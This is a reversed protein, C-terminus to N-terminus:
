FRFRVGARAATGSLNVVAPRADVVGDPAGSSVYLLPYDQGDTATRHIYYLTGAESSSAGTLDTSTNTGTLGDFRALRFGAEAFFVTRPGIEWEGGLAAEGGFGSGTAAGKMQVTGAAGPRETRYLYSAKVAYVGLAGRVYFGAGPYYRVLAKFPVARAAPQTVLTATLAPDELAIRDRNVARLYDAGLGFALRPSLRYCLEFGALYGLRLVGPKEPAAVGSQAATWAVFGRAADNLHGPGVSALGASVSFELPFDGTRLEPMRIRGIRIPRAKRGAPAKAATREPAGAREGAEAAVEVVLSEHIWGGLVGGDELVYRVFYWEGEKRDAELVTGEPVQQVISSGIDPKERLNAQEATIRVKVPRVPGAAAAALIGAGLAMLALVSLVTRIMRM